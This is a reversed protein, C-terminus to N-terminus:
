RSPGASGRDNEALGPSQLLVGPVTWKEQSLAPRLGADLWGAGPSSDVPPLCCTSNQLVLLSTGGPPNSGGREDPHAAPSADLNKGLHRSAGGAGDALEPVPDVERRHLAAGCHRKLRAIRQDSGRRSPLHGPSAAVKTPVSLWQGIVVFPCCWPNCRSAFLTAIYTKLSGMLDKLRIPGGYVGRRGPTLGM